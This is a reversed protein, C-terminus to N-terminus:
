SVTELLAWLPAFRTNWIQGAQDATVLPADMWQRIPGYRSSLKSRYYSDTFLSQMEAALAPGPPVDDEPPAEEAGKRGRAILPRGKLVAEYPFLYAHPGAFLESVLGELYSRADSPAIARFRAVTPAEDLDSSLLVLTHARAVDTAATRVMHQLLAEAIFRDKLPPFHSKKLPRQSPTLWAEEDGLAISPPFAGHLEIRGVEVVSPSLRLPPASEVRMEPVGRGLRFAPLPGSWAPEVRALAATWAALVEVDLARRAASFLGAPYRGTEILRGLAGDYGALLHERGPLAGRGAAAGEWLARWFAQQLLAGRALRAPDLLEDQRLAEETEDAPAELGLAAKASGQLPCRLFDRLQTLRLRRTATVPAAHPARAAAPPVPALSAPVEESAIGEALRAAEHEAEAAPFAARTAADQHRWLPVERTLLGPPTGLGTALAVETLEDIIASPRLREGTTLDRDQYVLVLAERAALLTDLFLGADRDRPKLARGREDDGRVDLHHPRSSAPFRGEDLGVVVILRYPVSRASGWPAVTVGHVLAPGDAARLRELANRFLERAAQYGVPAPAASAAVGLGALALVVHRSGM